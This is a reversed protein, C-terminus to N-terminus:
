MSCDRLPSYDKEPSKKKQSIIYKEPYLEEFMNYMTNNQRLLTVFFYATYLEAVIRGAM